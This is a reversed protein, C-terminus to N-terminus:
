IAFLESICRYMTYIFDTGKMHKQTNKFNLFSKMIRLAGTGNTHQCVLTINLTSLGYEDRIRLNTISNALTMSRFTLFENPLYLFERWM